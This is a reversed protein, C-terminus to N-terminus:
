PHSEKTVISGKAADGKAARFLPQDHTRLVVETGSDRGTVVTRRGGPDVSKVTGNLEDELFIESVATHEGVIVPTGPGPETPAHAAACCGRITAVDPVSFRIEQDTGETTGILTKVAPEFSKITRVIDASPLMTLAFTLPRHFRM